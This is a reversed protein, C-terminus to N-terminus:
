RGTKGKQTGIGSKKGISLNVKFSEPYRLSKERPIIKGPKVESFHGSSELKRLIDDVIKGSRAQGDIAIQAIVGAKRSETFVASKFYAEDTPPLIETLSKMQELWNVNRLNWDSIAEYQSNFRKFNRLEKSKKKDISQLHAYEAQRHALVGRSYVFGVILVMAVAAVALRIKRARITQLDVSRKPHLFDFRDSDSLTKEETTGLCSVFSCDTADSTFVESDFGLDTSVSKAFEEEFGTSGAVLVKGISGLSVDEQYVRITRQLHLIAQESFNGESEHLGVSRSSIVGRDVSLVDIELQSLSLTVLLVAVDSLLNAERLALYNAYPRLTISELKLGAARAIHHLSDITTSRVAASLVSVVQGDDDRGTVIYDASSEEISFPLEQALQFRVLNAVQDDVSAPIDLHHLFARDCGICFIVRNSRINNDDLVMKLFSGFAEPNDVDIDSPIEHSFFKLVSKAAGRGVSFEVVRLRHTDWDVSIYSNQLLM